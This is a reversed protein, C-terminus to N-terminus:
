VENEFLHNMGAAFPSWAELQIDLEQHLTMEEQRQLLIVNFKISLLSLRMTIFWIMYVIM